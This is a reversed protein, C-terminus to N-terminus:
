RHKILKEGETPEGSTSGSSSRTDGDLSSSSVSRSLLVSSSQGFHSPSSLPQRVPSGLPSSHQVPGSDPLSQRSIVRRQLQVPSVVVSSSATSPLSSSPSTISSASASIRTPSVVASLELESTDGSALADVTPGQKEDDEMHKAAEFAAAAHVRELAYSHLLTSGDVTSPATTDDVESDSSVDIGELQLVTVDEEEEEEESVPAYRDLEKKLTRRVWVTLVVTVVITVVLGVALLVGSPASADGRLVEDLKKLQAGSYVEMATTPLMAFFSAFTYERLSVSTLGFSCLSACLPTFSGHHTM